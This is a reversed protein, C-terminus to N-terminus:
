MTLNHTLVNIINMKGCEALRVDKHSHRYQRRAFSSRKELIECKRRKESSRNEDHDKPVRKPGSGM